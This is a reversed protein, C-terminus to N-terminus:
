SRSARAGHQAACAPPRAAASSVAACRSEGLVEPTMVVNLRCVVCTVLTGGSETLLQNRNGRFRM